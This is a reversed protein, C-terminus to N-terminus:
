LYQLSDPCFSVFFLVPNKPLITPKKFPNLLTFFVDCPNILPTALPKIQAPAIPISPLFIFFAFLSIKLVAFPTIDSEPLITFCM